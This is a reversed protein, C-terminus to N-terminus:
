GLAPIPALATRLRALPGLIRESPLYGLSHGRQSVRALAPPTGAYAHRLLMCRGRQSQTTRVHVSHLQNRVVPRMHPHVSVCICASPTKGLANQM